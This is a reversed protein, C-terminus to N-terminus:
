GLAGSGWGAALGDHLWLCHEFHDRPWHSVQIQGIPVVSQQFPWSHAMKGITDVSIPWKVFLRPREAVEASYISACYKSSVRSWPASPHPRPACPRWRGCPRARLIESGCSTAYKYASTAGMHVHFKMMSVSSGLVRYCGRQAM